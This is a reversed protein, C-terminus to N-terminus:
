AGFIYKITELQSQLQEAVLQNHSKFPYTSPSYLIFGVVLVILVLVGPIKYLLKM